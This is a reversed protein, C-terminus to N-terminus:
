IVTDCTHCGLAWSQAPGEGGVSGEGGRAGSRVKLKEIITTTTSLVEPERADPVNRRYDALIADWLPPMFQERVLMPERCQGVWCTIFKLTEKKVTRMSAILPQKM